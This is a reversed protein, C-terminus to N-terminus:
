SISNVKVQYFQFYLHKWSNGIQHLTADILNLLFVNGVRNLDPLSSDYSFIKESMKVQPSSGLPLRNM